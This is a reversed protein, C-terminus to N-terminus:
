HPASLQHQDEESELRQSKHGQKLSSEASFIDEVLWMSSMSGQEFSEGMGDSQPTM